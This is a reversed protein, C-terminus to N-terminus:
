LTEPHAAHNHHRQLAQLYYGLQVGRADSITNSSHCEYDLLGAECDPPLSHLEAEETGLNEGKVTLMLQLMLFNPLSKLKAAQCITFFFEM